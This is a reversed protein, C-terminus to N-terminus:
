LFLESGTYTSKYKQESLSSANSHLLPHLQDPNSLFSSSAESIPLWYREKAFPYTPLSVRKPQEHSYLLEWDVNLGSVWLDLLKEYKKKTIWSAIVNQIDDDSGLVSVLSKDRKINGQYINEIHNEDALYASLDKKLQSISTVTMAMREEMASRGTQLTYAIDVLDEDNFQEKNLAKLLNEVQEKLRSKNAASLLIIAPDQKTIINKSNKEKTPIYEEIIVHANSGGAGFSSIGARRPYDKTNGNKELKVKKWETLEQQVVFPSNQFDINPNLAKSHLSPVIKQYKMQMLVKTIAAMGAASECHGINSKVSGIACFQNEKTYKKFVKTLGAIEIPDGLSTGTGHAELYNITRPDIKSNNLAEEIVDAQANPNPVTYGNTKGGHNLATSKITGYIHNGDKIAKSLPKLLVAGVGEGPVYGDGGEGFSECKGKSSAFNGQSLLLYKNPHVSVNVGGAIAYECESNNISQCALHLASLSSSCMTDVTMSPGHLNYYYSVRNAISAINGSIALSKGKAQEQAGYLQYEQFMVGVYVGINGKKDKGKINAINERSYGADEITKHVCQLFLREQPDMMEAELPTINFFLPDFQDVGDIFGGWKTYSKGKATKDKDFYLSSDWREKPIETICDTGNKLVEWFEHIDQSNSYQGALGIIAIDENKLTEESKSNSKEHFFRSRKSKLPKIAKQENYEEPNHNVINKEEEKELELIDVLLENFHTLFYGTLEKITKYEFFLTKPLVGFTKELRSTLQMIMISDIGYKEMPSEADIQKAPLRIVSSLLDKFYNIVKEEKLGSNPTELAKTTNRNLSKKQLTGLTQEQVFDNIKEENGEIVLVQSKGSTFATYLSDLGTLTKMPLMGMKERMLREVDTGVQMGGQEWLPWNVSITHGSRKQSAVLTNRYVAYNDMFSNGSAYDVQGANGMCGAISSFLILFDLPITESAKDLNILGNVKVKLVEKLEKEIKKVIYNDRIIGASHIIGNLTGFREIIGQILIDVEEKQSIDTQYYAVKAGNRELQQIKEKKEEDLVSRGTLILVSSKTKSIIEEAFLMGLGGMGGTILYVADTKWLEQKKIPLQISNWGFTYRKNEIYNISTDWPLQSNDDLLNATLGNWSDIGILQGICYPNEQFATKLMGTLGRFSKQQGQNSTVIQIFVRKDSAKKIINQLEKFLRLTYSTYKKEIEQEQVNFLITRVGELELKAATEKVLSIDPEILILLREDFEVKDDQVLVPQEKWDPTFLLTKTENKNSEFSHEVAVITLGKIHVCVKGKDDCLVINFKNIKKDETDYNCHEIKAWTSSSCDGHIELEEIKYPLALNKKDNDLLASSAHLAADLVGPHLVFKSLNEEHDIPLNLKALAIGEGLYIKEVRKFSNGYDIGQKSFRAYLQKDSLISNDCGRKIDDLDLMLPDINEVTLYGQSHLIAEPNENLEETYVEFSIKENEEPYLAVHVEVAQKDVIIPQHWTIEKIRIGTNSDKLVRSSNELSARAMELYIVGPLVRQGEIIHDSLFTETGIFTTSFRQETLDSTNKQLLPHIESTVEKSFFSEKKSNTNPIWYRTKAFPYTPLNIRQPKNDKYLSNWQINAGHAWGQAIQNLKNKEFWKNILEQSDKDNGLQVAIDKNKSKNGYWCDQIDKGEIFLNIKEKLEQVTNVLFAIREEMHCRGVQLTYSLNTLNVEKDPTKELYDIFNYASELLREKNKASLLIIVKQFQGPAELIEKDLPIHEEVIVHANGGGFGFSSIGARRPFEENNKNKLQKWEQTKDLIYFPTKELSIFKNLKNFHLIGPLTKEKISLITKIFGAIGAASETHGISSKVAGLGCFPIELNAGAEQFAENLAQFEIPDGLSTGTGHTEIYSITDVPIDAESYASKILQKQANLNPARLSNSKGDHNIATGKIIGYITDNDKLAEKYPKLLVAGYGESRVFGDAKDDFTKCYGDKSLMGAKHSAIYIRSSLILNIGGAIAMKCEGNNISEIAHHIAVLSSSCATNIIESPGHFNFWRSVRHPIMSMHLGSDTYAGYTDILSSQKSILEAYDNSHAGVFLGINSDSLSIPDYGGDEIVSWTLQLVKRQQPDMSEAELPSIGFFEADFQDVDKIFGGWKPKFNSPDGHSNQYDEIVQPRSKSIETICNKGTVINDWFLQPNTAEGPFNCSIGIVAISTDEHEIKTKHDTEPTQYQQIDLNTSKEIQKSIYNALKDISQYKFLMAPTFKIKFVDEIRKTINIYQISDLGLEGLSMNNELNESGTNVIKSFVDKKLKTLVEHEFDQNLTLSTTNEKKITATNYKYLTSLKGQRYLNKCNKRQIKGSGTRPIVGKDVLNVEYIELMYSEAVSNLIEQSLKKYETDNLIETEQVVIIKEQQNSEWSFVCIPLTLDPLKKRIVWELDVPHYNKGNIIIVEKERGIIYLHKEKIFGLDGTRFFGIDEFGKVTRNFIKNTEENQNFYGKAVSPSSIWIEGVEDAKAICSTQPNVCLIQVDEDIVGCSSVSKATKSQESLKIIGKELSKIDLSLFNTKTNPRKSVVAGVESMGYHPCFINDRLGLEQFKITFNEYTEKRIPEGGCIIAKLSQLSIQKLKDVELSSCCYDFAFNPAATHTGEYESIIEFWKYPDKVFVDPPLIISSAGKLLPAMFNFFLGFSHFQPMWSVICSEEQIGYQKASQMAQSTVNGHTLMVGKPKATSGSTYLMLAIDDIKSKRPREFAVASDELEDVCVISASEFDDHGELLKKFDTNTIICKSDSDKFIPIIKEAIVNPDIDKSIISTPIVTVNTYLCSLISSIYDLGQPLLVIAKNQPKLLKQLTSSMVMVKKALMEGTLYTLNDQDDLFFLLKKNSYKKSLNKYFTLSAFIHKINNNM